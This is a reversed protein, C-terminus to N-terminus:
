KEVVEAVAFPLGQQCTTMMDTQFKGSVEVQAGMPATAADMGILNALVAGDPGVLVICGSEVGAAVTGTLTEAGGPAASPATLAPTGTPVIAGSPASQSSAVSPSSSSVFSSPSPTAPEASGCAAVAFVLLAAAAISGVVRGSAVPVPARGPRRSRGTPSLTM